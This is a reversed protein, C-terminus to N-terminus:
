IELKLALTHLTDVILVVIPPYLLLEPHLRQDFFLPMFRLISHHTNQGLLMGLSFSLLPGITIFAYATNRKFPKELAIEERLASDRNLKAQYSYREICDKLRSVLHWLGICFLTLMAARGVMGFSQWFHPRLIPAFLTSLFLGVLPYVAKQLALTERRDEALLNDVVRNMRVQARVYHPRMTQPRAQTSFDRNKLKERQADHYAREQPNSLTRYALAILAFEKAAQESGGNVDPHRERALRRYASKIEAQSATPKVGLIQYYDFVM